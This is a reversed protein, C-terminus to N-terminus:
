IKVPEQFRGFVELLVGNMEGVTCYAKVCEILFPMLNATGRAAATLERLTKEVRGADRQAKVQALRVRQRGLIEPDPQYLALRPEEPRVFRNVGVIVKEGSEVRQQQRYAEQAIERQILGEEIAAVMGGMKEVRQILAAIEAEMRDTLAEIFWSGGLPDAVSAVGTEYALVQQTRLALEASEQTPLAFAEDYATTFMSQVGGLVAALAEYAVRVVNNLPQEVTLTSGGSVCGFRFMWSPPDKAGFRDRMIKAWLRRGARYKAVEEFFDMHTYFFFSIQRAIADVPLGRDVCAQLYAIADALTYGMEQVATAGADRFHAGAISIANFNPAHTACHEITDVILRISPGTPYIWTGRSVYEKLIDNQITGNVKEKPVSARECLALYMALLIAATGNITFSSSIKDLPLGQFIVEMDALTDIAVGVRGVEEEVRPDDSDYGMQTPLDLAVSLGTQGQELLFKYRANTDEATGFGAYQRFTWLRGRYMSAHLGRTYPYGGPYGIESPDRGEASEPGYSAELPIGSPTFAATPRRKELEAAWARRQDEMEKPEM